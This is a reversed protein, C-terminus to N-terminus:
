KNCRMYFLHKRMIKKLKYKNQVKCEQTVSTVIFRDEVYIM